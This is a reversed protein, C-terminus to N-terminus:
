RPPALAEPPLRLEPHRERLLALEAEAEAHRGEARLQVVRELWAKPSARWAPAPAAALDARAEGAARGASGAVAARAPSPGSDTAM